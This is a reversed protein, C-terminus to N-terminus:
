APARGRAQLGAAGRARYDQPTVGFWRKFARHFPAPESYGLLYAVEAIALSRDALYRGAADRRVDDITQQFSTGEAALRRQLTRSSTALERAVVDIRPDDGRTIRTALIRRVDALLGEGASAPGIAEAAQRELLGNLIPDRRRLPLQWSAAPVRMGSWSAHAHVPCGLVRAMEIGDDPQHELYIDTATFRGGTEEKLHFMGLAISYESVRPGGGVFAVRVPDEGDHLEMRTPSSVLSFYKALRHMGDGVTDATLILYDLLPYAGIPVHRAVQMAFNAIPRTEQARCWLTGYTECPFRADPDELKAHDFGVSAVLAPVDHGLAQLAGLLARIESSGTTLPPQTAAAPPNARGTLSNAGTTM